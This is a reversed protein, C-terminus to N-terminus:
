ARRLPQRDGLADPEDDLEGIGNLVRVLAPDDVAIQLRRVHEHRVGALRLHEVEPDGARSARVHLPQSSLGHASLQHAREGVHARLLQAASRRVDVSPAVDVREADQEIPHQGIAQREVDALERPGFRNLAEEFGLGRREPHQVRREGPRELGDHRARHRVIGVCKGSRRRGRPPDGPTERRVGARWRSM